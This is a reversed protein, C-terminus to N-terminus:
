LYKKIVRVMLAMAEGKTLFRQSKFTHDEYGIVLREKYAIALKSTDFVMDYDTFANDTQEYEDNTADTGSIMGTHHLLKVLGTIAAGRPINENETLGYTYDRLAEEDQIQLTAAVLDHWQDVSIPRDLLENTNDGLIAEVTKMRDLKKGLQESYQQFEAQAWNEHLIKVEVDTIISDELKAVEQETDPLDGKSALLGSNNFYIFISLGIAMSSIIKWKGM